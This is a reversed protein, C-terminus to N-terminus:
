AWAERWDLWGNIQSAPDDHTLTLRQNGARFEPWTSGDLIYGSIDQNVVDLVVQRESDVYLPGSYEVAFFEGTIENSLRPNVSGISTRFVPRGPVSGFAEFRTYLPAGTTSSRVIEARPEDALIYPSTAQLEVVVNCVGMAFNLDLPASRRRPRVMVLATQDAAVGPFRFRLASEPAGPLFAASVANLARTFEERDGAYVELTLTVARGNMYDDGPFLGHRQVLTLDSSRVEPLSLLGDVAVISVPSDPAGMLLGRYECTWDDLVAM